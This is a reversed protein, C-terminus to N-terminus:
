EWAPQVMTLKTRHSPKDPTDCSGVPHNQLHSASGMGQSLSGMGYSFEAGACM